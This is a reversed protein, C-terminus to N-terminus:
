GYHTRAAAPDGFSREATKSLIASSELLLLCGLLVFSGCGTRNSQYKHLHIAVQFVSLSPLYYIPVESQVYRRLEQCKNKQEKIIIVKRKKKNAINAQLNWQASFQKNLQETENAHQFLKSSKKSRHHMIYPVNWISSKAIIKERTTKPCRRYYQLTNKPRINNRMVKASVNEAGPYIVLSHHSTLMIKAAFSTEQRIKLGIATHIDIQGPETKTAAGFYPKWLYKYLKDSLLANNNKIKM